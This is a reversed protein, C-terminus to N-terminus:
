AEEGEGALGRAAAVTEQLMAVFHRTDPNNPPAHPLLATASELWVCLCRITEELEERSTEERM